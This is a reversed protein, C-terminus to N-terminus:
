PPAGRLIWLRIREIEETSLPPMGLPMTNDPVRLFVTSLNPLTPVFGAGSNGGTHTSQYTSLSLGGSVADIHCAKCYVEFIGTFLDGFTEQQLVTVTVEENPSSLSGDTAFVEFTDDGVFGGAPTYRLVDSIITVFGNSPPTAVQLLPATQPDDMMYDIVVSEGEVTFANSVALTPPSNPPDVDFNCLYFWDLITVSGDDDPDLGTSTVPGAWSSFFTLWDQTDYNGDPFIDASGPHVLVETTDEYVDLTTLDTLFVRYSTTM